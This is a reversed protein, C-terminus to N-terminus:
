SPGWLLEMLNASINDNKNKCILFSFCLLNWPGLVLKCYLWSEIEAFIAGSDMSRVAESHCKSVWLLAYNSLFTKSFWLNCDQFVRLM